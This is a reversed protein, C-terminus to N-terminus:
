VVTYKGYYLLIPFAARGNFNESERWNQAFSNLCMANLFDLPGLFSMYVVFCDSLHWM